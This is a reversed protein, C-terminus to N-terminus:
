GALNKGFIHRAIIMKQIENAGEYIEAIKCDRYIEEVRYHSGDAALERMFGYGGFIQVADRAFEGALNTAYYKAMAAEPEPFAIGQDLRRAAKLYLNRAHEIETAREAIRFQWYQSHGLAKGFVHRTKLREVSHDLLAQAMGVGSAAIGIRGYTLTELAVKLGEGPQGLVHTLPVEVEDFEIDATLQGHNGLKKDPAGVRVGPADLDVVLMTMGKGEVCLVTVFNAVPANTIFRKRGNVIYGNATARAHTRMAGVSLDTSTDPESTAFAGIARGDLLPLLHSQRIQPSGHRLANGALICNVDVIAAVSNSHYALEEIMVATATAPRHLGRGGDAASFPIRFLGQDAMAKVAAWPFNGVAEERHGLDYAIPAIHADAFARVEDRVARTEPADDLDHYLMDQLRPPYADPTQTM